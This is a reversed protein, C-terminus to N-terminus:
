QTAAVRATLQAMVVGRERADLADGARAAESAIRIVFAQGSTIRREIRLTFLEGMYLPGTAIRENDVSLSTVNGAYAACWDPNWGRLEIGPLDAKAVCSLTVERSVWGDPWLQGTASQIEVGEINPLWPSPAM